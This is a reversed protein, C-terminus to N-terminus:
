GSIFGYIKSVQYMVALVTDGKFIVTERQFMM